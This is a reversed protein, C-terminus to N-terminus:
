VPWSVVVECGWIMGVEVYNPEGCTCQITYVEDICTGNYDITDVANYICGKSKAIGEKQSSLM